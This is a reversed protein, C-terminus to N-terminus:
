RVKGDIIRYNNVEYDGDDKVDVTLFGHNWRNYPMYDPQLGCLCGMSWTTVVEGLLDKESHESTQHHHGIVSSSKARMYLGRAPNVPSFVSHGFEHGHLISLKGAKIMQKDKIETVGIEGFRLVYSLEFEAIGLLEPAVTKLYTEWRVEHNGIKYYIPCNFEEKLLRLFDRMMDIEGALDRLKRDKIFRSAQYMDMADGNLLIANPKYERGFDLAIDLAQEDHYPIHIDSLVLIRNNGKPIVFPECKEYDSEPLKRIGNAELKEKKTRPSVLEIPMKGKKEGRFHRVTERASAHSVFDLPFNEHLYRAITNTPSKPYKNLIEKVLKIRAENTTSM